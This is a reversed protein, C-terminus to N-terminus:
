FNRTQPLDEPSGQNDEAIDETNTTPGLQEHGYGANTNYEAEPLLPENEPQPNTEINPEPTPETEPTPYIEIIQEPEPTPNPEPTPEPEPTEPTPETESETETEPTSHEMGEALVEAAMKVWPNEGGYDDRNTGSIKADIKENM